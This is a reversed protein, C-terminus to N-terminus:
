VTRLCKCRNMTGLAQLLLPASMRSLTVTYDGPWLFGTEAKISDFLKAKRRMKEPRFCRLSCMCVLTFYLDNSTLYTKDSSLMNKWDPVCIRKYKEKEPVLPNMGISPVFSHPCSLRSLNQCM